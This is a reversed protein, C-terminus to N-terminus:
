DGLPPESHIKKRKEEALKRREEFSMSRAGTSPNRGDRKSRRFVATSKKTKISM